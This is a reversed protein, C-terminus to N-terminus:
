RCHTLMGSVTFLETHSHKLKGSTSQVFLSGEKGVEFM